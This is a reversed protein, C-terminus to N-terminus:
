PDRVLVAKGLLAAHKNLIIKVPMQRLLDEPRGEHPLAEMEYVKWPLNTTKCRGNEV